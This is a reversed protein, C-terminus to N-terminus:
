RYKDLTYRYLAHAIAHGESGSRWGGMWLYSRLYHYIAKVHRVPASKTGKYLEAYRAYKEKIDSLDRYAYHLLEGHLLRSESAVPQLSEHVPADDWEYINRNYLKTKREPRLHGYRIPKSGIHNVRLIRHVTDINEPSLRNISTQLDNSLREDADISLIWDNQAKQAGYNRAYGYGQWPLTHVKAGLLDAIDRTRDTSQADIVIIDDSIPLVSCICQEIHSEEQHTIIVVSCQM